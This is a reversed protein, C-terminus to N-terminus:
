PPQRAHSCPSPKRWRSPVVPAIPCSPFICDAGESPRV